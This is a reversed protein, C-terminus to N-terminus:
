RGLDDSLEALLARARRVLPAAPEKTVRGYTFESLTQALRALAEPAERTDQAQLDSRLIRVKEFDQIGERLREFRISSRAGPYVLFCDGPPWRVYSTDRLPDQVWSDFAWRLFGSYGQAAAYWGLWAAEAPPSHTFTNHRGPGCCVYFTTPKGNELRERAIAPDLPPSIFVCWDDIKDKLEPSNSGALAVKLEPATARLFELAPNMLTPPREDMAIHTKDLWGRQKLHAVFSNLFPGWVQAFTGDGPHFRAFEYEGTAEDLYRTKLTWPLMSYCNIAEIIGCRLALEVYKDFDTYDFSWTGDTGKIWKVMSDYPDYTQTGWAQYLITTTICKQGAQALMRLHPEMIALHAQSFPKVHHYRALAYPNQWLDLHFAWESPAPLVRDLVRLNLGFQLTQEGRAAVELTGRYEGPPTGHPVDISVWVPRASQAPLSLREADDLVDALLEGDALVYRVFRARVNEAPITDGQKGTLPGPLIRVGRAPTGTWLVLQAAAREGRWATATWEKNSQDLEPIEDRPYRTDTDGFAGHLGPGSAAYRELRENLTALSEPSLAYGEIEVIHGGAVNGASNHTFTARVYRLRATDFIFTEGAQTAPTTNDRRDALTSWNEGDASGEIVYRYYRGDGWYTWLRVVNLETPEELDLTLWVPINEAAWHAGASSHQGDVAFTPARDSWHPSATVKAKLFLNPGEPVLRTDPPEYIAHQQPQAVAHQALAWCLGISAVLLGTATRM